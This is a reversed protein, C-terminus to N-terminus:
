KLIIRAPISDSNLAKVMGSPHGYCNNVGNNFYDCGTNLPGCTTYYLKYLLEAIKKLINM